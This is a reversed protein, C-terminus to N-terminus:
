IIMEIYSKSFDVIILNKDKVYIVYREILTILYLKEYDTNLVIDDDSVEDLNKDLFEFLYSEFLM